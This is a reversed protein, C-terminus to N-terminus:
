AKKRGKKRTALNKGKATGAMEVEEVVWEMEVQRKALDARAIRVMVPQGMKYEKGSYAGTMSLRSDAVTFPEDLTEFAIMGEVRSEELEVFFGRDLFGSILGPFTEGIHKSIYEVQKYKISEREADTARREQQSVHKCQEELKVKNTRYTHGGLNRELLRHSLVDSYRRIPSTFHTYYDFGLGYHGINETSYEAKAMTRIAIPSLLKLSPNKEAEKALRNYSRSIERPTSINMDFGMERAFRALEAVKDPDPEDHVRYVYPIEEDRGKMSIYTAVERNALLMFDEILLHADQREKVFVQVPVGHEDLHFRVEDTEFNIAGDRFRLKRLHKAIKNLARLENGMEDSHGELVEQAESYAFRRDSHIVTRGFWRNIIKMNKDFVFIASFALRDENPRLSCLGNSLREPLMPLVRDVLYVSTSRKFAEQDLPSDDKVYHTVDAIHVGVETEGNDLYRISLADDYDKADEPDITFTPIDRVDRRLEIEQPSIKEPLAEAQRIVDEPFDLEFGNNILISKMEVDNSGAKGLVATVIGTPHKHKAGAWETIQVVVRDGDQADRIKDLDVGVDMPLRTDLSIIAHRPYLWLTGIFHERARELVKVVEGEPKRRGRPTWARVRVKDGHMATNLYRAAIHVDHEKGTGTIYADGSRTMDVRGELFAGESAGATAGTDAHPHGKLKYKYDGLPQLHQEETLKDLAFQVSDKNNALNLKRVIQKPNLRKKPHRRFLNLIDRQLQQATLKKGTKKSKRKKTM